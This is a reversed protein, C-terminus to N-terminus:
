EKPPIQAMGHARFQLDVLLDQLTPAVQVLGIDLRGNLFQLLETGFFACVNATTRPNWLKWEQSHGAALVLCFDLLPEKSYILTTQLIAPTHPQFLPTPNQALPSDAPLLISCM